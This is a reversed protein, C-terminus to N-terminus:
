NSCSDWDSAVRKLNYTIMNFLVEGFDSERKCVSSILQSVENSVVANPNMKELMNSISLGSFRDPRDNLEALALPKKDPNDILTNMLTSFGEPTIDKSKQLLDREDEEKLLYLEVSRTDIKPSELDFLSLLEEKSMNISHGEKLLETMLKLSRGLLQHATTNTEDFYDEEPRKKIGCLDKQLCSKLHTAIAPLEAALVELGHENELETITQDFRAMDKWVKLDTIALDAQEIAVMDNADANKGMLPDEDQHKHTPINLEVKPTSQEDESLHDKATAHNSKNKFVILGAISIVILLLIWKKM